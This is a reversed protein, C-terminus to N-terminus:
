SNSFVLAPPVNVYCTEASNSWKLGGAIQLSVGQESIHAIQAV